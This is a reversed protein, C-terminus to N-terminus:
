ARCFGMLIDCVLARSTLDSTTFNREAFCTRTMAEVQYMKSQSAESTCALTISLMSKRMLSCNYSIYCSLLTHSGFSIKNSTHALFTYVQLCFLANTCMDSNYLLLTFFFACTVTITIIYLFYLLFNYSFINIKANLQICRLFLM